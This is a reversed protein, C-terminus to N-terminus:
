AWNLSSLLREVIPEWRIHSISRQGREGMSKAEEPHAYLNEFYDPGLRCFVTLMDLVGKDQADYM